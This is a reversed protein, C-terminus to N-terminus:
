VLPYTLYRDGSEYRNIIYFVIEIYCCAVKKWEVEDKDFLTMIKLSQCLVVWQKAIQLPISGKDNSLCDLTIVM